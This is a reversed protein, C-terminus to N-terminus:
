TCQNPKIGSHIKEHTNLDSRQAFGKECTHCKFPKVGPHQTRIHSYLRSSQIFGKMCIHCKYPKEGTHVRLHRQLHINQTFAMECYTCQYPKIGSHIREHRILINQQIFGKGCTSCKFPKEGTHVRMHQKLHPKQSFMRNCHSCQHQKIGKHTMKIHRNLNSKVSFAKSCTPCKYPTEGTHVRMHKILYCKVKFGKKCIDCQYPREGTHIRMHKILAGKAALGRGCVSCQHPKDASHEINRQIGNDSANDQHHSTRDQIKVDSVENSDNMPKLQNSAVSQPSKMHYSNKLDTIQRNQNDVPHFTVTRATRRHQDSQHSSVVKCLSRGLMPSSRSQYFTLDVHKRHRYKLHKLLFLRGTFAASCIECQHFNGDNIFKEEEIGLEKAYEEGYYVLLEKGAYIPKFSRYYVQGRFQYAILNQEPENRACNVYRMWNAKHKNKGNIYHTRKKDNFIEWSYGSKRGMQENVVIEGGYPGFRVGKPIFKETWVGQGAGEIGAEKVVLGPPLSLKARNKCKSPVPTDEIITLPHSPCDDEYLEHCEECYVYVDDEVAELDKYSKRTGERLSYRRTGTDNQMEKKSRMRKQKQSTQKVAHPTVVNTDDDEFDSVNINALQEFADDSDYEPPRSTSEPKKMEREKRGSKKLPVKFSPMKKRSRSGGPLWNDDDEDSNEVTVKKKMRGTQRMFDPPPVNLGVKIMMEYNQKMNRMRLREYESFEAFEAATFYVEIGHNDQEPSSMKSQKSAKFNMM